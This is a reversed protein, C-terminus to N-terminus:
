AAVMAIARQTASRTDGALKKVESAVVAFGRGAEGARAAEITANLALLNTQNAIQGIAAVIEGMQQLTSKLKQQSATLELKRDTVDTAVKVVKFPRGAPDLIPNYTAQLWVGRGDKAIRYFEGASFEGQGLMHWFKIYADSMAFEADCLMRHYKGIIESPAYGMLRLFVDNAALVKGTLDFEVVAQSRCIASWVLDVHDDSFIERPQESM